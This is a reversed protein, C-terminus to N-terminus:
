AYVLVTKLGFEANKLSYCFFGTKERNFVQNITLFTYNKQFNERFFNKGSIRNFLYPSFNFDPLQLKNLTTIM